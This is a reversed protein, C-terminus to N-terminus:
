NQRGARTVAFTKGDRGEGSCETPGLSQALREAISCASPFGPALAPTAVGVLRILHGAEPAGRYLAIMARRCLQALDRAAPADSAGMRAVLKALARLWQVQQFRGAPTRREFEELCAVWRDACAAADVANASAAQKELDRRIAGFSPMAAERCLAPRKRESFHRYIKRVIRGLAEPIQSLPM